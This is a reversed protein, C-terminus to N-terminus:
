HDRFCIVMENKKKLNYRERALKEIYRSDKLLKQIEEELEKNEQILYTKRYKLNQNEKYLTYLEFVSKNGTFFIFGILFFLIFLIVLSVRKSVTSKAKSRYIRKRKKRM